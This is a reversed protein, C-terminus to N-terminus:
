KDNFNIHCQILSPDSFSYHSNKNVKCYRMKQEEAPDKNIEIIFVINLSFVIFYRVLASHRFGKEKLARVVNKM